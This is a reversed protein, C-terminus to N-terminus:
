IAFTKIEDCMYRWLFAGKFLLSMQIYLAIEIVHVNFITM